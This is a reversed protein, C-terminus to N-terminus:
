GSFALEHRARPKHLAASCDARQDRRAVTKRGSPVGAFAAAYLEAVAKSVTSLDFTTMIRFSKFTFRSVPRCRDPRSAATGRVTEQWNSNTSLGRKRRTQPHPFNMVAFQRRVIQSRQRPTNMSLQRWQWNTFVSQKHGQNNAHVPRPYPSNASVALKLGHGANLWNKVTAMGRKRGHAICIAFGNRAVVAVLERVRFGAERCPYPTGQRLCSSFCM